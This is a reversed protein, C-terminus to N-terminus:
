FKINEYPNWCAIEWEIQLEKRLKKKKKRPLKKSDEWKQLIREKWEKNETHFMSLSFSIFPLYKKYISNM